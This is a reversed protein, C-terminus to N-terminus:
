IRFPTMLTKHSKSKDRFSELKKEHYEVHKDIDTCVLYIFEPDTDPYDKMVRLRGLAQINGQRSGLATTLIVTRLGDIDVATGASLVTSVVIDNSLLVDYPDEATYSAVSMQPHLRKLDKAIIGCMEVTAAFILLKQQGERKEIFSTQVIRSIMGLYNKLLPKQKIMSNEFEVHSYSKRGRQLYRIRERAQNTFGYQLATVEIYKIYEAGKYRQDIPFAIEYVKNMFADDHELTASLELTKPVHTYLLQRFKLHFDSHVEDGLSVGVKLVKLLDEPMVDYGADAGRWREYSKLYNYITKNTIIIFKADLQDNLGLDMLAKLHKAGRVVMIEGPTIGFAERVDSIWKEVFMGKITLMTRMGLREVAKLACYTKGRGTQLTVVKINGEAVMYDIVPVQYDRSQFKPNMKYEVMVPDYLPVENILIDRGKYGHYGLHQLLDDLQTRHFRFEDRNFTAAAFVKTMKRVNRRGVRVFEYLGLTDCYSLLAEKGRRDFKTVKINHSFADIRFHHM